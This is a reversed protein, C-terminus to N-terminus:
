PSQSVLSNDKERRLRTGKEIAGRSRPILIPLDKGEANTQVPDYYSNTGRVLAITRQAKTAGSSTSAVLGAAAAVAAVLTAMAAFRKNM